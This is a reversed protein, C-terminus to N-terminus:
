AHFLYKACGYHDIVGFSYESHFLYGDAKVAIGYNKGSSLSLMFKGTIYEERIIYDPNFFGVTVMPIGESFYISRKAAVRCDVMQQHNRQVFNYVKTSLPTM